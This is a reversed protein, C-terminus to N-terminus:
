RSSAGSDETGCPKIKLLRYTFCDDKEVSNIEVVVRPFGTDFDFAPDSRLNNRRVTHAYMYTDHIAEYLAQDMYSVKIVRGKEAELALEIRKKRLDISCLYAHQPDLDKVFPVSPRWTPMGAQHVLCENGLKLEVSKIETSKSMSRSLSRGELMIKELAAARQEPRESKDVLDVVVQLHQPMALRQDAVEKPEVDHQSHGDKSELDAPVPFSDTLDLHSAKERDTPNFMEFSVALATAKILPLENKPVRSLDLVAWLKGWDDGFEMHTTVKILSRINPCISLCTTQIAQMMESAAKKDFINKPLEMWSALESQTLKSEFKAGLALMMSNDLGASRGGKVTLVQEIANLNKGDSFNVGHEHVQNENLFASDLDAGTFAYVVETQNSGENRGSQEATIHTTM